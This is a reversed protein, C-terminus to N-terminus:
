FIFVLVVSDDQLVVNLPCGLVDANTKLLLYKTSENLKYGSYGTSEKRCIIKNNM